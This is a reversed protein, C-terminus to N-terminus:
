VVGVEEKGLQGKNAVYDLWSQKLAPSYNSGAVIKNLDQLTIKQALGSEAMMNIKDISYMMYEYLSPRSLSTGTLNSLAVQIPYEGKFKIWPSHEPEYNLTNLSGHHTSDKAYNFADADCRTMQMPKNETATEPVKNEGLPPEAKNPNSSVHIVTAEMYSQAGAYVPPYPSTAASEDFAGAPTHEEVYEAYCEDFEPYNKWMSNTPSVPPLPKEFPKSLTVKVPSNPASNSRQRCDTSGLELPKPPFAMPLSGSRARPKAKNLAETLAANVDALQLRKVKSSIQSMLASAINGTTLSNGNMAMLARSLEMDSKILGTDFGKSTLEHIFLDYVRSRKTKLLAKNAEAEPSSVLTMAGTTSSISGSRQPPIADLSSRRTKSFNPTPIMSDSGTRPRYSPPAGELSARRSRIEPSVKVKPPPLKSATTEDKSGLEPSTSTLGAKSFPRREPTFDHSQTKKPLARAGSLRRAPSQPASPPDKQDPVPQDKQPTLMPQQTTSISPKSNFALIASFHNVYACMLALMVKRQNAGTFGDNIILEKAINDLTPPVSAPLKSYAKHLALNNFGKPPTIQNKQLQEVFETFVKQRIQASNIIANKRMNELLLESSQPIGTPLQDVQAKQSSTESYSDCYEQEPNKAQPAQGKGNQM